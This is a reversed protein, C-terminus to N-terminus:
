RITMLRTATTGEGGRLRLVYRGPALEEGGTGSLRWSVANAGAPYAARGFDRVLVGRSDFLQLSAEARRNLAFHVTAYEASPNPSVALWPTFVADKADVEIGTPFNVANDYVPLKGCYYHSRDPAPVQPHDDHVGALIFTPYYIEAPIGPTTITWWPTRYRDLGVKLLNTISGTGADRDSIRMNMKFPKEASGSSDQVSKFPFIMGFPIRIEMVWAGPYRSRVISDQVPRAACSIGWLTDSGDSVTRSWGVKQIAGPYRATDRAGGASVNVKQGINGGGAVFRKWLQFISFPGTNGGTLVPGPILAMEMADLYDWPTASDAPFHYDDFYECAIYLASDDHVVRFRAIFDRLGTYLYSLNAYSENWISDGTLYLTDAALWSPDDMKGDVTIARNQVKRVPFAKAGGALDIFALRESDSPAFPVAGNLLTLLGASLIVSILTRAGTRFFANMAASFM